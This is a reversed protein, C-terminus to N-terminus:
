RIPNDHRSIKLEFALAPNQKAAVKSAERIRKLEKSVEVRAAMVGDPLPRTRNGYKKGNEDLLQYKFAAEIQAKKVVSYPHIARLFRMATQNRGSWTHQVAWRRGSPACTDSTCIGGGFNEVLLVLCPLSTQTVTATLATRYGHLCGSQRAVIVGVHGEGDFFGATWALFLPDHEIM